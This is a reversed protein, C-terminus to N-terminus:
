QLVIQEERILPATRSPNTYAEKFFISALDDLEAIELRLDQRLKNGLYNIEELLVKKSYEYNMKICASDNNSNTMFKKQLENKFFNSLFDFDRVNVWDWKDRQFNVM